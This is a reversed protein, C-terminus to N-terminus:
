EEFMSTEFMLRKVNVSASRARADVAMACRVIVNSSRADIWRCPQSGGNASEVADNSRDFRQTAAAEVHDDGAHGAIM